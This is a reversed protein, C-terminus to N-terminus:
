GNILIAAIYVLGLKIYLLEVIFSLKSYKMCGDYLPCHADALLQDFTKIQETEVLTSDGINGLETSGSNPFNEAWIDELM